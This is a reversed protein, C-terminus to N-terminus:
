DRRREWMQLTGAGRFGLPAYVPAGMRTAQLTASTCGRARAALLAQGLLRAALGAGRADPVTAVWYVGASAEVEVTCLASAPRGDRRAVFVRAAPDLLQLARSFPGDAYPYSADNIAALEALEGEATWDLDGPDPAGLEDLRCVMAAPEADLVHGARALLEAAVHDGEPVWVTWAKVGAADYIGALRPLADALAAADDCIVSNFVSREPVIPVVAAVVGPEEAVHSGPSASGIWRAFARMDTAM